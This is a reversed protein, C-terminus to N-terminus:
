AAHHGRRLGIVIITGATAAVAAGAAASVAIAARRIVVSRDSTEEEDVHEIRFAVSPLLTSPAAITEDALAGLRRSLTRYRAAEAQCTLCTGVHTSLREGLDDVADVGPLRLRVITCNTSM